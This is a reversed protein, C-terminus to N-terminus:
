RGPAPRLQGFLGGPNLPETDWRESLGDPGWCLRLTHPTTVVALDLTLEAGAWGASAAIELEAEPLRLHTRLWRGCGVRIAARQGGARMWDLTWGSRSPSIVLRDGACTTARVTRGPAPDGAVPRVQRTRRDTGADDNIGTSRAELAPWLHTWVADMVPQAGDINNTTVVVADAEPLILALQGDAGDIRYGHRSRWVQWGYGMGWDPGTIGDSDIHRVRHGAIWDAPLLRRGRHVGNDLLLQAFRALQDPRLHLGSYGLPIGDLDRTWPVPGIGIPELVRETLLDAVDRGTTRAVIRSLMWTALNNYAFATGPDRVPEAGLFARATEEGLPRRNWAMAAGMQDAQEQSHGTAMALADRVRIRRARPGAGVAADPWLDALTDQYGFAGDAVAMGVAASTFTKSCSYVLCPEGSDWPTWRLDALTRDHQRVLLSHPRTGARELAAATADLATTLDADTPSM